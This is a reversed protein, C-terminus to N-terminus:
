PQHRHRAHRSYGFPDADHDQAALDAEAFGDDVLAQALPEADASFRHALGKAPPLAFPEEDRTV